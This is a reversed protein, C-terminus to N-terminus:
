LDRGRDHGSRYLESEATYVYSGDPQITITGNDPPNVPVTNTTLPTGDPDNDGTDTLDGSAPTDENITVLENDLVPPDNVANVTITVVAQDCDNDADCIQYTIQDTGNFNLNPTYVLYDDSPDNPTGNDNVSAVGNAPPTTITIATTSPDDGGFNDNVIVLINTAGADEPM